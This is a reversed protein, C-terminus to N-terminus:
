LDLRKANDKVLYVHQLILVLLSVSIISNIYGIYSILNNELKRYSLLSGANEITECSSHCIM